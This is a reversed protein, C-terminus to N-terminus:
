FSPALKDLIEDATKNWLFPKPRPNQEELYADIAAAILDLVGALLVIGSRLVNRVPAMSSRLISALKARAEPTLSLSIAKGM